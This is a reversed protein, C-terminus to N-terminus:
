VLVPAVFRLPQNYHCRAALSILSHRRLIRRCNARLGIERLLCLLALWDANYSLSWCITGVVEVPSPMRKEAASDWIIVPGDIGVALEVHDDESQPKRYLYIYLADVPCPPARALAMRGPLKSFSFNRQIEELVWTATITSPCQTLCVTFATGFRKRNRM